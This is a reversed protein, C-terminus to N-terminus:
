VSEVTHPFKANQTDSLLTNQSFYKKISTSCLTVNSLVTSDGQTVTRVIEIIPVCEPKKRFKDLPEM